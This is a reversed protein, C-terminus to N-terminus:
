ALSPPPLALAATPLPQDLYGVASRAFRPVARRLWHHGPQQRAREWTVTLSTASKAAVTPAAPQGPLEAVNTVTVTVAVSDSDTGDSAEVTLSRTAGAEYDLGDASAM